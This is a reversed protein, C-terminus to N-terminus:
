TSVEHRPLTQASAHRLSTISGHIDAASEQQHDDDNDQQDPDELQALGSRLSCEDRSHRDSREGGLYTSGM